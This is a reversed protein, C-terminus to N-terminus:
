YTHPPPAAKIVGSSQITLCTGHFLFSDSEPAGCQTTLIDAVESSHPNLM